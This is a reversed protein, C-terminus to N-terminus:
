PRANLPTQRARWAFPGTREYLWWYQRVMQGARTYRWALMGIAIVIATDVLYYRLSLLTGEFLAFHIFRVGAGLAALYLVTLGPSRWTQACAKGTMFAGWGGMILTVLLFLWVSPEEYLVGQM